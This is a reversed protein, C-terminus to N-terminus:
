SPDEALVLAATARLEVHSSGDIDHEVRLYDGEDSVQGNFYMEGTPAYVVVRWHKDTDTM